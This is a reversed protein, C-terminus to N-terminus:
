ACTVCHMLTDTGSHSSIADPVPVNGDVPMAETSATAENGVYVCQKLIREIFTILWLSLGVLQWVAALICKTLDRFEVTNSVLIM